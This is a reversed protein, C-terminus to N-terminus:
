RKDLALTVGMAVLMTGTVGQMAKHAAPKRFFTRMAEILWVYIFLWVIGLVAYTSGMLLIQSFATETTTIFQPLFTLFFIAVKPNFVNSLLGQRFSSLGHAPESEQGAPESRSAKNRLSRLSQIGLYVLYVAGIYKIVTFLMASQAIIASIGLAAALIHVVVGATIGLVTIIGGRKGHTLTNKTVLAVDSGPTIIIALSMLVFVGFEM